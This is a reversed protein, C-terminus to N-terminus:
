LRRIGVNIHSINKHNDETGEPLKLSLPVPVPKEELIGTKGQWYGEAMAGYESEDTM